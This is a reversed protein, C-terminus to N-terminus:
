AHRSGTSREHEDMIETLLDELPTEYNKPLACAFVSRAWGREKYVRVFAEVVEMVNWSDLGSLFMMRPVGLAPAVASADEQFTELARGLPAHLMSKVCTTVRMFDAGIEDLVERWGAAEERTFGVLLTCEPGFGDADTNDGLFPKFTPPLRERMPNDRADLQSSVSGVSEGIEKLNFQFKLIKGGLNSSPDSPYTLGHRM